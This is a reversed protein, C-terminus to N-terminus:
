KSEPARKRKGELISEVSPRDDYFDELIRQAYHHAAEVEEPTVIRWDDHLVDNGLVRVDEHAKKRRSETIIGDKAAEDIKGKLNGTIYGDAKLTKELTSRFLASSARWCSFAACREAERFEAVIGPPVTAPLTVVQVAIPFFEGLIGDTIQGSDHIIALGGRHCGTCRLLQNILRSFKRNEFEHQKDVIFQGFQNGGQQYEFTTPVGCDPCLATINLYRLVPTVNSM